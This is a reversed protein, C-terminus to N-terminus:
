GDLETERASTSLKGLVDELKLEVIRREVKGRGQRRRGTSNDGEVVRPLCHALVERLVGNGQSPPVDPVTAVAVSDSPSVGVHAGVCSGHSVRTPLLKEGVAVVAAPRLLRDAMTTESSPLFRRSKASQRTPPRNHM